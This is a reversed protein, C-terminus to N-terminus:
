ISNVSYFPSKFKIPKEVNKEGLSVFSLLSKEICNLKLNIYSGKQLLFPLWFPNSNAINIRNELIKYFTYCFNLM